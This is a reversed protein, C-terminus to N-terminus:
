PRGRLYAAFRRPYAYRRLDALDLETAPPRAPEVRTRETRRLSEMTWYHGAACVATQRRIDRFLDAGCRPCPDAPPTM